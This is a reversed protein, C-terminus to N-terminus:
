DHTDGQASRMLPAEKKNHIRWSIRRAIGNIYTETTGEPLRRKLLAVTKELNKEYPTLAVLAAPREYINQVACPRCIIGKGTCVAQETIHGCDWLM